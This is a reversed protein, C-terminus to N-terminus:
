PTGETLTLLYALVDEIEQASYITRDRFGEEVRNLGTTSHYPPMLTEPNVRRADVLRLRLAAEDLRGAVGTLDPGLEGMDPEGEIPFRHCILYTANSADRVIAEGRVPDGVRGKLPDALGTEMTQAVSALPLFSVAAMVSLACTKRALSSGAMEVLGDMANRNRM